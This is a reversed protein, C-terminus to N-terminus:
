FHGLIFLVSLLIGVLLYIVPFILNTKITKTKLSDMLDNLVKKNKKGKFRIQATGIWSQIVVSLELEPNKIKVSSLTQEYEYNKDNLCEIFARQFDSGDVGYILFGKTMFSMWAIFIGTMLIIPIGGGAQQDFLMQIATIIQPLFCLSIFLIIWVSNFILPKKRIFVFLAMSISVLSLILFFYPYMISLFDM